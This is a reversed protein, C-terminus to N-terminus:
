SRNYRNIFREKTISICKELEQQISSKDVVDKYQWYCGFALINHRIARTVYNPNKGRSESVRRGSDFVEGTNLNVVARCRNDSRNKIRMSTTQEFIQLTTTIDNVLDKEYCWYCGKCKIRRKIAATLSGGSINYAVRAKRISDFIEGTNLNVVSNACTANYSDVDRKTVRKYHLKNIPMDVDICNSITQASVNLIASLCKLNDFIEGTEICQIKNRHMSPRSKYNNKYQEELKQRSINLFKFKDYYEFYCNRSPVHNKLAICICKYGDRQAAAVSEYIKGTTLNIIKKTVHSTYPKNLFQYCKIYQAIIGTRKIEDTYQWFCEGAKGHRKIAAPITSYDIDYKKAAASITEFIEGTTLNAVEKNRQKAQQYAFSHIYVNLKDCRGVMVSLSKIMASNSTMGLIQHALVHYQLPLIILNDITSQGGWSEPIIHHVEYFKIIGFDKNQCNEIFNIYRNFIHLSYKQSVFYNYLQTRIQKAIM